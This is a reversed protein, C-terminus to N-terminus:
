LDGLKLRIVKDGDIKFYFFDELPFVAEKQIYKIATKPNKNLSNFDSISDVVVPLHDEGDINYVVGLRYGFGFQVSAHLRPEDSTSFIYVVPRKSRFDFDKFYKDIQSRVTEAFIQNHKYYLFEIDQKTTQFFVLLSIIVAPYILLYGAKKWKDTSFSGLALGVVLPLTLASYIQYRSNYDVVSTPNFLWPVLIFAFSFLWCILSKLSEAKQGTSIEYVFSVLLTFFYFGGIFAAASGYLFLPISYFFILLIILKKKLLSRKWFLLIAASVVSIPIFKPPVIGNGLTTFLIGTSSVSGKSFENMVLTLKGIYFYTAGLVPGLIQFPTLVPVTAAVSILLSLFFKKEKKQVAILKVLSVVVFLLIIGHARIPNVLISGLYLGLFMAVKRWSNVGPLILLGLIMFAISIYSTFNKAWDTTELGIPTLIFLLAGAFAGLNTSKMKKIFYFLAAAALFRTIFSFFYVASGNLGFYKTILFMLIAGVQYAQWQYYKIGADWYGTKLLSSKIVWIMQWEDGFISLHFTKNFVLLGIIFLIILYYKM